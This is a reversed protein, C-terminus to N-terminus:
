NSENKKSFIEKAEQILETEKWQRDFAARRDASRM